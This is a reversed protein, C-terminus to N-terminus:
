ADFVGFFDGGESEARLIAGELGDGCQIDITVSSRFAGGRVGDGLGIFEDIAWGVGGQCVPIMECKIQNIKSRLIVGVRLNHQIRYFNFFHRNIGSM